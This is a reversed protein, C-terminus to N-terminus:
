LFESFILSYLEVSLLHGESLILALFTFTWSMDWVQVTHDTNGSALQKGSPSFAVAEIGGL